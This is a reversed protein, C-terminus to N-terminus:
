GNDANKVQFEKGKMEWCEKQLRDLVTSLITVMSKAAQEPTAYLVDSSGFNLYGEVRAKYTEAEGLSYKEIVITNQLYRGAYRWEKGAITETLLLTDPM